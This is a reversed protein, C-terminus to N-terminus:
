YPYTQCSFLHSPYITKILIGMHNSYISFVDKWNESSGECPEFPNESYEHAILVTNGKRSFRLEGKINMKLRISRLNREQNDAKLQFRLNGM